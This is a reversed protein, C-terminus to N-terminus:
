GGAALRDFERRLQRAWAHAAARVEIANEVRTTERLVPFERAPRHKWSGLLLRGGRGERLEAVLVMDGFSRTYTRTAVATQLEPANLYLDLVRAELVPAGADGGGRKDPADPGSVGALERQLEDAVITAVEDKLKQVEAPRPRIHELERSARQWDARLEVQVPAVQVAAGPGRLGPRVYLLDLARSPRRELGQAQWAAAAADRSARPPPSLAFAAASLGLLMPLLVAARKMAPLM